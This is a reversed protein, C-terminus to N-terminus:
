WFVRICYANSKEFKRGYDMCFSDHFKSLKRNKKLMLRWSLVFRAGFAWVSTQHVPFLDSASSKEFKFSLWPNKLNLDSTLTGVLRSIPNSLSQFCTYEERVTHIELDPQQSIIQYLCFFLFLFGTIKCNISLIVIFL